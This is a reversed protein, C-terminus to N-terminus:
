EDKEFFGMYWNIGKKGDQEELIYEKEPDWDPHESQRWIDTSGDAYQSNEVYNTFRVIGKAPISWKASIKIVSGGKTFYAGRCFMFGEYTGDSKFWIGMVLSGGSKWQDYDLSYYTWYGSSSSGYSYKGVLEKEMANLTRGKGTGGGGDGGDDDGNKSCGGFLAWLALCAIMLFNGRSMRFSNRIGQEMKTKVVQTKM